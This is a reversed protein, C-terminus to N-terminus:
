TKSGESDECLVLIEAFMVVEPLSVNRRVTVGWKKGGSM